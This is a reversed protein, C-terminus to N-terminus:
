AAAPRLTTYKKFRFLGCSPIQQERTDPKLSFQWTRAVLLASFLLIVSIWIPNEQIKKILVLTITLQKLFRNVLRQRGTTKVAIATTARVKMNNDSVRQKEPRGAAGGDRRKRTLRSLITRYTSLSDEKTIVLRNGSFYSYWNRFSWPNRPGYHVTRPGSRRTRAFMKRFRRLEETQDESLQPLCSFDQIQKEEPWKKPFNQFEHEGVVLNESQPPIANGAQWGAM